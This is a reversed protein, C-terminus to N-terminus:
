LNNGEVITKGFPISAKDVEVIEFVKNLSAEKAKETLINIMDQAQGKSSYYRMGDCRGSYYIYLWTNDDKKQISSSSVYNGDSDKIIYLMNPKIELYGYPKLDEEDQPDADVWKYTKGISFKDRIPNFGAAFLANLYKIDNQGLGNILLTALQGEKWAELRQIGLRMLIDNHKIEVQEESIKYDQIDLSELIAKLSQISKSM